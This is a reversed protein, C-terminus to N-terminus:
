REDLHLRVLAFDYTSDLPPPGEIHTDPIRSFGGAVLTGDPALALAAIGSEDGPRLHAAFRGNSAFTPDLAGTATLRTIAARAFAESVDDETPRLVSTGFLINRDVVLTAFPGNGRLLVDTGVRSEVTGDSQYSVRALTGFFRDSPVADASGLAIITGDHELALDSVASARGPTVDTIVRGGTGFSPDLSGDTLYRALAFRPQGDSSSGGAVIKGDPQIVLASSGSTHGIRTTVIGGTGFSPDLSGDIAFRALAFAPAIDFTDGAAVIRGDPQVALATLSGGGAITLQVVGGTGFGPDLRGADDFRAVFWPNPGSSAVTGGVIVAGDAQVAVSTAATGPLDLLARGGDAFGPDLTGDPRYRALAARFDLEPGAASSSGVVVIAGDDQVVLATLNDDRGAFDTIVVGGTGFSTVPEGARAPPGTPTPVPTPSEADHDDRDGDGCGTVAVLVVLYVWWTLCRRM